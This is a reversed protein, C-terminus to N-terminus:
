AMLFSVVNGDHLRHSLSGTPLDRSHERFGSPTLEATVLNRRCPQKVGQFLVNSPATPVASFHWSCVHDHSLISGESVLWRM